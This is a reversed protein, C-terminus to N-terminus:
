KLNREFFDLMSQDMQRSVPGFLGHTKQPYVSMEFQKGARQLADTMQLTNQFLVNDDEINHVIMLKGSLKEALPPLAAKRYGEPNESPLGMYRETYITDYNLWNTVPAGAVGAHFVDNANLLANLTMFGGYSWGTIGVRAPDVLGIDILHKVGAVQDALEITGLRHYVPTEFGHGRGSGGRNEAEWVLFGSQAYVQDMSLGTWYNRITPAVPGGYVNVILPYKRGPEFGSPKILKGQLPTGDASKFSVIETPLIDYMDPISTDAERYVALQVGDGRHITARPPMALSSVTDLYFAAGKGMSISHNGVKSDIRRMDRAALSVSYLHTELPTAESSTYYVRGAAEDIGSIERVEWDGKTLPMLMQGDISHLYIHRFGSRESTWLFRKGDALFRVDDRLNIWYPDSDHILVKAAGSEIDLSLLDLRNQVRNLRVVYVAHSGPMWGARAILSAHRTDGLDLWKTSGGTAAVIGLRVDPNNEGAQPYRQPEYVARTKLLDEHPYVPERSTDFQLYAIRKSDPSWWYATGLDLEEPYVWDLGGNRLTDTGGETLRTEKGTALELQYLDWGRRFSIMRGDPSIKPDRERDATKTIQDWKRTDLHILFLDGGSAYLLEKGSPFWQIPTDRVRRNEWGFPGSDTSKVAAKDIEETAVVQTSSQSAPDYHMLNAGRRFVFSKGDPAWIPAGNTEVRAPPNYLAEITVPKKQALAPIALLLLLARVPMTYHNYGTPLLHNTTLLYGRM